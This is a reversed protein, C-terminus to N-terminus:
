VQGALRSNKQERRRDLGWVYANMLSARSRDKRENRPDYEVRGAYSLRAHIFGKGERPILDVQGLAVSDHVKVDIDHGRYEECCGCLPTCHGFVERDSRATGRTQECCGCSRGCCGGNRACKERLWTDRLYWDPDRQQFMMARYLPIHGIKWKLLRMIEEASRIDNNDVELEREFQRMEEKYSDMEDPEDGPTEGNKKMKNYVRLGGKRGQLAMQLFEESKFYDNIYQWQDESLGICYHQLKRLKQAKQTRGSKELITEIPVFFVSSVQVLTHRVSDSISDSLKM